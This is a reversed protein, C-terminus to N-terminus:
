FAAAADYAIGCCSAAERAKGSIEASQTIINIHFCTNLGITPDLGVM